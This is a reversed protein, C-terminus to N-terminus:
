QTSYINPNEIAAYRSAASKATAARLASTNRGVPEAKPQRFASCSQVKRVGRSEHVERGQPGPERHATDKESGPATDTQIQGRRTKRHHAQRQPVQRPLERHLLDATNRAAEQARLVPSVRGVRMTEPGDSQWAAGSGGGGDSNGFLRAHQEG